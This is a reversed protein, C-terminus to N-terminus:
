YGRRKIRKAEMRLRHRRVQRSEPQEPPKNPDVANTRSPQSQDPAVVLLGSAILSGALGLMGIRNAFSM